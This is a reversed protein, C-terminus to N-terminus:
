RGASHDTGEAVGGAGAGRDAGGRRVGGCERRHEGAFIHLPLSCCHGYFGHFFRGDQAGHMPDDTADLDLVIEEPPAAAHAQLFLEVLLRDVAAHDVAIQKYRAAEATTAGSLELRSLTSKGALGASLDGAEALVAFLPDHRLADHDTLEEYGLALGYVRQRVLAAVAHQIRTQDRHDRFCATFQQLIGTVREVERLLVVSGNWTLAGGDFRAVLARGAVEQFALSTVTCETPM